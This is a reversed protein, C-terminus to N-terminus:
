SCKEIIIEVSFDDGIKGTYHEEPIWQWSDDFDMSHTLLATLCHQQETTITGADITAMLSTLQSKLDQTIEQIRKQFEPKTILRGRTIMKSNKKSPVKGAIKLTILSNTM